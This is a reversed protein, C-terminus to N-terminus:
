DANQSNKSLAGALATLGSEGPLRNGGMMLVLAKRRGNVNAVLAAATVNSTSGHIHKRTLEIHLAKSLELGVLKAFWPLWVSRRMAEEVGTATLSVRSSIASLGVVHHPKLFAGLHETYERLLSNSNSEVAQVLKQKNPLNASHFPCAEVQLLGEYGACEALRLFATIRHLALSGKRLSTEYFHGLGETAERYTHSPKIISSTGGVVATHSQHDMSGGPNTTVAVLPNSGARFELWPEPASRADFRGGYFASNPLRDALWDFWLRDCFSGYPGDFIDTM